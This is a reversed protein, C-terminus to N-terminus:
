QNHESDISQLYIEIGTCGPCDNYVVYQPTYNITCLRPWAKAPIFYRGKTINPAVDALKYDNIKANTDFLKKNYKNFCWIYGQYNKLIYEYTRKVWWQYFDYTDGRYEPLTFSRTGINAYETDHLRNLGCGSVIKGDKKFLTYFGGNEEDYIKQYFLKNLFQAPKSEWDEDWMIDSGPGGAAHASKAWEVIMKPDSKSNVDIYNHKEYVADLAAITNDIEEKNGIFTGWAGNTDYDWVYLFEDTNHKVLKDISYLEASAVVDESGRLHTLYRFSGAAEQSLCLIRNLGNKVPHNHRRLAKGFRKWSKITAMDWEKAEFVQRPIIDEAINLGVGTEQNTQVLVDCERENVIECIRTFDELYDDGDVPVLYDYPTTLFYDLVSQKGQGPTGNSETVIFKCKNREAVEKAKDAYTPDLSNAVVVIDAWLGVPNYYPQNVNLIARELKEIDDSTLIGVLFRSM